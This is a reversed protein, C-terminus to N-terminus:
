FSTFQGTTLSEFMGPATRTNERRYSSLGESHTLYVELVPEIQDHQSLSGLHARGRTHTYIFLVCLRSNYCCLPFIFATYGFKWDGRNYGRVRSRHTEWASSQKSKSLQILEIDARECFRLSLFNICSIQLCRSQKSYTFAEKIDGLRVTLGGPGLLLKKQSQCYSNTRREAASSLIPQCPLGRGLSTDSLTILSSCLRM